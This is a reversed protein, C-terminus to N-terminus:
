DSSDHTFDISKSVVRLLALFKKPVIAAAERSAQEDEFVAVSAEPDLAIVVLTGADVPQDRIGPHDIVLM